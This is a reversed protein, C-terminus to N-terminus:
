EVGGTLARTAAHLAARATVVDALLDAPSPQSDGTLRSSRYGAKAKRYGSVASELNWAAEEVGKTLADADEVAQDADNLIDRILERAQRKGLSRVLPGVSAPAFGQRHEVDEAVARLHQAAEEAIGSVFQAIPSRDRIVLRGGVRCAIALQDPYLIFALEWLRESVPEDCAVQVVVSKDHFVQGDDAKWAGSTEGVSYGGAHDLVHSLFIARAADTPTGDNAKLPLIFGYLTKDFM